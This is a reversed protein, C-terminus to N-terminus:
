KLLEIQQEQRNRFRAFNMWISKSEPMAHAQQLSFLWRSKHARWRVIDVLFFQAFILRLTVGFCILSTDSRESTFFFKRALRRAQFFATGSTKWRLRESAETVETSPATTPTGRGSQRNRPM